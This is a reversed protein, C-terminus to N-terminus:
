AQSNQHSFSYSHRVCEIRRFVEKEKGWEQTLFFSSFLFTPEHRGPPGRPHSVEDQCTQRWRPSYQPGILTGSPSLSQLASQHGRFECSVLIYVLSYLQKNTPVTSPPPPTSLGELTGLRQLTSVLLDLFVACTVLIDNTIVDDLYLLQHHFIRSPPRHM